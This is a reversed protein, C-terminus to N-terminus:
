KWSSEIATATIEKKGKFEFIEKRESEGKGTVEQVGAACVAGGGGAIGQM